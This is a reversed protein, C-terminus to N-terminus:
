AADGDAALRALWARVGAASGFREPVRLGEGGLARAAAIGDEDTVDDGIFWPRRGQFAPSQMLRRVAEGKHIGRPRVEWACAAALIEHTASGALLDQLAAQLRPGEAPALRYHLVFGAHKPELLVGPTAAAWGRAADQWPQPVV